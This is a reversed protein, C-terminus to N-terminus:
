LSGRDTQIDGLMNEVRVSRIRGSTGHKAPPQRAALQEVEEEAVRTTQYRQFRAATRVM